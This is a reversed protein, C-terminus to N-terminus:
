VRGRSSAPGEHQNIREFVEERHVAVNRPASIGIRVQLGKVEQVTVTIDNGIKISQGINRTLILVPQRRAPFVM